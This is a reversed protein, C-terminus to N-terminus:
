DDREVEKDLVMFVGDGVHIFRYSSDDIDVDQLYKTLSLKYKYIDLLAQRYGVDYANREGKHQDLYNLTELKRNLHQSLMEDNILILNPM